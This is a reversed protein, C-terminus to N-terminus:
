LWPTLDPMGSYAKFNGELLDKLEGDTLDQIWLDFAERAKWELGHREPTARNCHLM